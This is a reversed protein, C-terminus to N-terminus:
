PGVPRTLKHIDVNRDFAYTASEVAIAIVIGTFMLGVFAIVVALIKSPKQSPRIDGFGVTSATIFSWYLANFPTWNEIRGVVLGLGAVVCTFSGLLPLTLWAITLFADLFDLTFKM